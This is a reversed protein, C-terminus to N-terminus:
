ANTLDRISQVITRMGWPNVSELPAEDFVSGEWWVGRAGKLGYAWVGM